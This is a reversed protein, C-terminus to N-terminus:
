YKFKPEQGSLFLLDDIFAEIKINNPFNNELIDCVNLFKEKDEDNLKLQHTKFHRLQKYKIHKERQAIYKIIKKESPPNFFTAFVVKSLDIADSLANHKVNGSIGCLNKADELSIEQRFGILCKIIEPQINTVKNVFKLLIPYNEDDKFRDIDTKTQNYDSTGFANLIGIHYKKLFVAANKFVTILDESNDIEEQKLHTLSICYPTLIDNYKPKITSYFKDIINGQNDTICIGISLVESQIEPYKFDKKSKSCTFEFDVFANYEQRFYKNFVKLFHAANAKDKFRKHCTKKNLLLNYRESNTTIENYDKNGIVYYYM